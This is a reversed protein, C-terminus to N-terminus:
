KVLRRMRRKNSIIGTNKGIWSLEGTIRAYEIKPCRDMVVDINNEKALKAATHNIVGLQMWITKPLLKISQKVIELVESSTRFIDIMDPRNNLDDLSSLVTKGLISNGKEKPNIPIIDYGKLLLYKAAFYSPRNWNSSLGVIAITRTRELITQIYKDSYVLNNEGNNM